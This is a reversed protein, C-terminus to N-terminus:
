SSASCCCGWRPSPSRDAFILDRLGCPDIALLGGVLLVALRIGTALNIALLRVSALAVNPRATIM